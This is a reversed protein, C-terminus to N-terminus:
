TSSIITFIKEKIQALSLGLIQLIELIFFEKQFCNDEQCYPNKM